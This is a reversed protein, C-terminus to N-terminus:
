CNKRSGSLGLRDFLGPPGSLLLDIGGSRQAGIRLNGSIPSKREIKSVLFEACALFDTLVEVRSYKASLEGEAVRQPSQEGKVSKEVLM